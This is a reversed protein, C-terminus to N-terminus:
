VHARGIETFGVLWDLGPIETNVIAVDMLGFALVASVATAVLRGRPTMAETFDQVVGVVFAPLSCGLLLFAFEGADGGLLHSLTAASALIGVFVGVGGIRPVPVAHFKQPKSFDRDAAAHRLTASSHVLLLSVATAVAFAIIM